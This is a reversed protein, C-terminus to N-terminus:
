MYRRTKESPWCMPNVISCRIKMGEIEFLDMAELADLAGKRDVYRIIAAGKHPENADWLVIQLPKPCYIYAITGFKEQATRENKSGYPRESGSGDALSVGGAETVM